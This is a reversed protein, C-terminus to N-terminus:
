KCPQNGYYKISFLDFLHQICGNDQMTDKSTSANSARLESLIVDFYEADQKSFRSTNSQDFLELINGISLPSPISRFSVLITKGTANINTSNM